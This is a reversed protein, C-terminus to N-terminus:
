SGGNSAGWNPDVWHTSGTEKLVGGAVSDDGSYTILTTWESDSPIHWGTPCVNKGGNGSVKTAANNDIVYWNYLRGYTTSNTPTNEYDCYASTTLSAWTPNVKINPIATGDNYKTTKLNEAM